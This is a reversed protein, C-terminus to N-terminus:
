PWMLPLCSQREGWLGQCPTPLADTLLPLLLLPLSPGSERDRSSGSTSALSQIRERLVLGDLLGKGALHIPDEHM